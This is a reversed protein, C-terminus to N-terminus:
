RRTARHYSCRLVREPYSAFLWSGLEKESDKTRDSGSRPCLKQWRDLNQDLGELDYRKTKFYPLLSVGKSTTEGLAGEAQAQNKRLSLRCIFSGDTWGTLIVRAIEPGRHIKAWVSSARITTESEPGNRM